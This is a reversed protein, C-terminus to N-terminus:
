RDKGLKIKHAFLKERRSNIQNKLEQFLGHFLFETPTNVTICLKLANELSPLKRGRVWSSIQGQGKVGMLCAPQKLCYDRKKM